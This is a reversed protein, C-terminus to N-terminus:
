QIVEDATALLAEPITLGLAKATKLNIVLEFKTPQQVPLDAPREGKLIRAVYIGTIRYAESISSAYSILGGTAAFARFTYMTPIATFRALTVLQQLYGNIIASDTVLLAGMRQRVLMTFAEDIERENSVNLFVLQLGLAAAAQRLDTQQTDFGPSTPDIIVGITAENPLLKHLLDLRKAALTPTGNTVGTVNGGPRNLSAVLGARVPDAGQEFIIPITATAAKAALAAPTGSAVIVNVQRKVLDAAMPPLRDNRGEAWRHEFRVNRGDTFGGEKLGGLLAALDAMGSDPASPYLWGIAPLAAQQARVGIPWAAASGLRRTSSSTAM